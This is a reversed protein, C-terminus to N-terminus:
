TCPKDGEAQAAENIGQLAKVIARSTALAEAKAKDGDVEPLTCAEVYLTKNLEVAAICEPALNGIKCGRTHTLDSYAAKWRAEGAHIVNGSPNWDVRRYQGRGDADVWWEVGLGLRKSKELHWGMWDTAIIKDVEASQTLTAPDIDSLKM